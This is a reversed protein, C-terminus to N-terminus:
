LVVASRDLLHILDIRTREVCSSDRRHELILSLALLPFYHQSRASHPSRLFSLPSTANPLPDAREM